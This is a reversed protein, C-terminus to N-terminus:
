EKGNPLRSLMADIRRLLADFRQEVKAELLDLQRSAERLGVAVENDFLRRLPDAVAASDLRKSDDM